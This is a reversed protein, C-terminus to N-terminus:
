CKRWKLEEKRKIKYKVKNELVAVPTSSYFDNGEIHIIERQPTKLQMEYSLDRNIYINYNGDSDPVTTGRVTLPLKILRVIKDM